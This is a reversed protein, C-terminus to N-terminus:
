GWDSGRRSVGSSGDVWNVMGNRLSNLDNGTTWLILFFGVVLIATIRLM